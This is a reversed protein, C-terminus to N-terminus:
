ANRDSPVGSLGINLTEWVFNVREPHEPGLLVVRKLVRSASAIGRECGKVDDRGERERLDWVEDACREHVIASVQPPFAAPRV